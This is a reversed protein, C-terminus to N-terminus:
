KKQGYYIYLMQGTPMFPIGQKRVRSRAAKSLTYHPFPEEQFRNKALSLESAVRHLEDVTDAMLISGDSYTM